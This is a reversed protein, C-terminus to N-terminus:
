ISGQLSPVSSLLPCVKRGGICASQEDVSKLMQFRSVKKQGSLTRILSTDICAATEVTCLKNPELAALHGTPLNPTPPPPYCHKIILPTPSNWLAFGGRVGRGSIFGPEHIYSPSFQKRLGSAEWKRKQYKSGEM